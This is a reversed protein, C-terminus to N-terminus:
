LVKHQKVENAITKFSKVWPKKQQLSMPLSKVAAKAAVWTAYHGYVLSYWPKGNFNTEFVNMEGQLHHQGIFNKIDQVDHTALLQLTYGTMPISTSTHRHLRPESRQISHAKPASSLVPTQQASNSGTMLNRSSQKASTSANAPYNSSLRPDHVTVPRSPSHGVSGQHLPSTQASKTNHSILNASPTQTASGEIMQLAKKALPQGQNAAKRIWQEATQTDNTIGIGYYYMYGLAYQADSDGREAAAQVKEASCDYRKLYANQACAQSVSAADFSAMANKNVSCGTMTFVLSLLVVRKM